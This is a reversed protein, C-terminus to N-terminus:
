TGTGINLLKILLRTEESIRSERERYEFLAKPINTNNEYQTKCYVHVKKYCLFFIRTALRSSLTERLLICQFSLKSVFFFIKEKLDLSFAMLNLTHVREFNEFCLFYEQLGQQEFNRPPSYM